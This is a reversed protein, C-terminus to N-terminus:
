TDGLDTFKDVSKSNKRNIVVGAIKRSGDMIKAWLHRLDYRAWKPDAPLGRRDDINKSQRRGSTRM